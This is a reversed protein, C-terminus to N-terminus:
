AVPCERDPDVDKAPYIGQHSLTSAADLIESARGTRRCDAPVTSIWFSRPGACSRLTSARGTRLTRLRSRFAGGGGEFDDCNIRFALRSPGSLRAETPQDHSFTKRPRRHRHAIKAVLMALGANDIQGTDVCRRCATLGAIARCDASCDNAGVIM